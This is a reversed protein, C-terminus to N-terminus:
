TAYFPSKTWRDILAGNERDSVSIKAILEQPKASRSRSRRNCQLIRVLFIRMIIKKTKPEGHPKNSPDIGTTNFQIECQTSITIITRGLCLQLHINGTRSHSRHRHKSSILNLPM